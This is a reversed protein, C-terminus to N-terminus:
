LGRPVFGPRATKNEAGGEPPPSTAAFLDPNVGGLEAAQDSVKARKKAMYRGGKALQQYNEAQPNQPDYTVVSEGAAPAEAVRISRGIM